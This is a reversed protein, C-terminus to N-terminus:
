RATLLESLAGILARPLAQAHLEALMAEPPLDARSRRAVGGGEGRARVARREAGDFLADSRDRRARGPGARATVEIPPRRRTPCRRAAGHRAFTM